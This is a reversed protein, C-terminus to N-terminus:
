RIVDSTLPSEALGAICRFANDSIGVKIGAAGIINGEAVGTDYAAQHAAIHQEVDQYVQDLTAGHKLSFYKPHPYRNAITKLVLSSDQGVILTINAKKVNPKSLLYAMSDTVHIATAIWRPTRKELLKKPCAPLVWAAQRDMSAEFAQFREENPDPQPQAATAAQRMKHYRSYGWSVAVMDLLKNHPIDVGYDESIRAKLVCCARKLSVGDAFIDNNILLVSRAM